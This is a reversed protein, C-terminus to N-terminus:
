QHCQPQDLQDNHCHYHAANEQVNHVPIQEQNSLHGLAKEKASKKFVNDNMNFSIDM